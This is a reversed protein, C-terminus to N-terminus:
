AQDPILEASLSHWREHWQYPQKLLVEWHQWRSASCKNGLMLAGIFDNKTGIDQDWVTVELTRQLLDQPSVSYIFEEDFSPNLTKKKVATKFKSSKDRDPKLYLKVFPDSYGNPDMALLNVCQMVKVLLESKAPAYYLGLHIKGRDDAQSTLSKELELDKPQLFIEYYERKGHGLQKLPMAIEGMWDSGITDEDLVTFRVTKSELDGPLVGSYCFEEDWAPNLTRQKTKTRLKTRRGTDPLLHIKVYPDSLGNADQATLNAGKIVRIYLTSKAIIYQLVFHLQGLGQDRFDPGIVPSQPTLSDDAPPVARRASKIS